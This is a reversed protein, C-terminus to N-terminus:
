KKFLLKGTKSKKQGTQDTLTIRYPYIGDAPIAGSNLPNWILDAVEYGRSPLLKQDRHLLKGM